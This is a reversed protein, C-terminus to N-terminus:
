LADGFMPNVQIRECIENASLTFWKSAREHETNGCKRKSLYNEQVSLRIGKKLVIIQQSVPLSNLTALRFRFINM